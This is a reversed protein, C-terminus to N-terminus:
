FNDRMKTLLFPFINLKQGSWKFSSTVSTAVKPIQAKACSYNKTGASETELKEQRKILATYSFTDYGPFNNHLVTTYM